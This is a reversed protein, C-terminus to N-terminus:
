CITLKGGWAESPLYMDRKLGLGIQNIGENQLWTKIWNNMQEDDVTLLKGGNDECYRSSLIHM